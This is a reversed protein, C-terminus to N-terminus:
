PMLTPARDYALNTRLSKGGEGKDRARQKERGGKKRKECDEHSATTQTVGHPFPTM